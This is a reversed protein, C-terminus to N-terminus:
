CLCRGGFCLVVHNKLDVGCAECRRFKVSLKLWVGVDSVM